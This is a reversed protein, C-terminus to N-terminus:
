EDFFLNVIDITKNTINSPNLWFQITEDLVELRENWEQLKDKKVYCIGQKNYNWCSKIKKNNKTYQDPNFRILIIPRHHVDFSLQMMRKNECTIDYYRHQNEDIEIIIVQYGLDLL